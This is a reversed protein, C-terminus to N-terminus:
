YCHSSPSTYLGFKNLHVSASFILEQEDDMVEEPAVVVILRELVKVVLGISVVASIPVVPVM